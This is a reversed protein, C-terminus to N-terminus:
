YFVSEEMNSIWNIEVDSPSNWSQFSPMYNNSSRSSIDSFSESESKENYNSTTNIRKILLQLPDMQETIRTFRTHFHENMYEFNFHEDSFYHLILTNITNDHSYYWIVANLVRFSWYILIVLM